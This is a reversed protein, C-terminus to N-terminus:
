GGPDQPIPWYPDFAQPVPPWSYGASWAKHWYRMYIDILPEKPDPAKLERLCDELLRQGLVSANALLVDRDKELRPIIWKQVAADGDALKFKPLDPDIWEEFVPVKKLNNRLKEIAARESEALGNLRLLRGLFEYAPGAQGSIVFFWLYPEARITVDAECLAKAADLAFTPDADTEAQLAQLLFRWDPWPTLNMRQYQTRRVGKRLDGAEQALGNSTKLLFLLIKRRKELPLRVDGAAAVWERMGVFAVSRGVAVYYSRRHAEEKPMAMREDKRIFWDRVARQLRREVDLTATVASQEVLDMIDELHSHCQSALTTGEDQAFLYEYFQCVEGWVEPTDTQGPDIEIKMRDRITELPNTSAPHIPLKPIPVEPIPVEPSYEGTMFYRISARVRALDDPAADPAPAARASDNDGEAQKALGRRLESLLPLAKRHDGAEVLAACQQIAEHIAHRRADSELPSPAAGRAPSLGVAIAAFWLTLSTVFAWRSRSGFYARCAM